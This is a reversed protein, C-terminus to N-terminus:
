CSASVFDTQGDVDLTMVLTPLVEAHQLSDLKGISVEALNVKFSLVTATGMAVSERRTRTWRLEFEDRMMGTDSAKSAM